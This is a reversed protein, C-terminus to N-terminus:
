HRRRHGGSQKRSRRMAPEFEAESGRKSFSCSSGVQKRGKQMESLQDTAQPGNPNRLMAITKMGPKLETMVGLRKPILETSM